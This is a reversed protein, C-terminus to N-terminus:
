HKHCHFSYCQLLAKYGVCSPQESSFDARYNALIVQQEAAFERLKIDVQATLQQAVKEKVQKDILAAIAQKDLLESPQNMEVMTLAFVVATVSFAM